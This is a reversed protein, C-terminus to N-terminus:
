KGKGKKVFKNFSKMLFFVRLENLRFFNFFKRM